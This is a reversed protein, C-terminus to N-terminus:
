VHCLAVTWSMVVTPWLRLIERSFFFTKYVLTLTEPTSKASKPKKKESVGSLIVHRSHLLQLAAFGGLARWTCVRARADCVSCPDLCVRGRPMCAGCSKSHHVRGLSSVLIDNSQARPSDFVVVTRCLILVNASFIPRPLFFLFILVVEWILATRSVSSVTGQPIM